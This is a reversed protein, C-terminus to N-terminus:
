SRSRPPHRKRTEFRGRGSREAPPAADGTSYAKAHEEHINDVPAAPSIVNTPVLFRGKGGDTADVAYEVAARADDVSGFPMTQAVGMGCFFVLPKGASTHLKVLESLNARLEQLRRASNMWRGLLPIWDANEFRAQRM